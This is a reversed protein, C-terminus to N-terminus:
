PSVTVIAGRNAWLYGPEQPCSPATGCMTIQIALIQQRVHVAAAKGGSTIAVYEPWPFFAGHAACTAGRCRRRRANSMREAVDRKGAPGRWGVVVAKCGPPAISNTLPLVARGVKARAGDDLLPRTLDEGTKVDAAAGSEIKSRTPYPAVPVSEKAPPQRRVV